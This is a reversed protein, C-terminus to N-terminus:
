SIGSYVAHLKFEKFKMKPGNLQILEMTLSFPSFTAQQSHNEVRVVFYIFFWGPRTWPNSWVIFINEIDNFMISPFETTILKPLRMEHNLM